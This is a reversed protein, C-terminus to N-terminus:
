NKFHFLLQQSSPAMRCALQSNALTSKLVKGFAALMTGGPVKALEMLLKRYTCGPESTVGRPIPTREDTSLMLLLFGKGFCSSAIGTKPIKKKKKKASLQNM